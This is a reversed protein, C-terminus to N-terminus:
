RNLRLMSRSVSALRMVFNQKENALARHVGRIRRMGGVADIRPVRIAGREDHDRVLLAHCLAFFGWVVDKESPPPFTEADKPFTVGITDRGDFACFSGTDGIVVKDNPGLLFNGPSSDLMAFGGARLRATIHRVQTIVDRLRAREDLRLSLLSGLARAAVQVHLIHTHSEPVEM